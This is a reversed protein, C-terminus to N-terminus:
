ATGLAPAFDQATPAAFLTEADTLRRELTEESPAARYEEHAERMGPAVATFYRNMVEGLQRQEAVAFVARGMDASGTTAALEMLAGLQADTALAARSLVEANELAFLEKHLSRKRARIADNREQTLERYERRYEEAKARAHETKQERAAQARGADTLLEAHPGEVRASSRAIDDKTEYWARLIGNAKEGFGEEIEQVTKM